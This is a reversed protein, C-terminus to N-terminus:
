RANAFRKFRYFYDALRRFGRHNKNKSKSTRNGGAPIPFLEM